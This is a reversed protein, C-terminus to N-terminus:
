RACRAAAAPRRRPTSSRRRATARSPTKRAPDNVNMSQSTDIIFLVKLPFELESPDATCVNGALRLKNDFPPPPAEPILYLAVDTCGLTAGASLLLAALRVTRPRATTRM